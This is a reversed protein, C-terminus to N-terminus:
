LVHATWEEEADRTAEIRTCGQARGHEICRAIWDVNHEICRTANCIAAANHPGNVVFLNPFGSVLLGLFTKPGDRWKEEITLGGEGRINFRTLSGTGADFGTAFVIVDLSHLASTTRLGSNEFCEIPDERLDVLRVNERNFVEYYRNELPVRKTGFPHEPMLKRAVEPDRVRAAIKRRVFESAHANVEENMMLDAFNAFWFAFGPQEWLEAFLSEREAESVALGSRPDFNHIFGGYSTRCAALTEPWRKRIQHRENDDLVGNHQPMCYTPTRQFVTLCEVEAAITQIVQVGSAGTGVVGVRKGALEVGSAPWRATHCITGKSTTSGQTIPCEIPPCPGQRPLWTALRCAIAMRPKSRGALSTKM